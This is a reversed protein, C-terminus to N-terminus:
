NDNYGYQRTLLINKWHSEREIIFSDVVDPDFVELISFTFNVAYEKGKEKFLKKLQNNGGHGSNVYETWRGWICDTGTASGVYLKGTEIDAIVYIGRLNEM